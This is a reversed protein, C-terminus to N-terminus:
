RCVRGCGCQVDVGTEFRGQFIEPVSCGTRCTQGIQVQTGVCKLEIQLRSFRGDLRYGGRRAQNLDVRFGLKLEFGVGRGLRLQNQRVGFKNREFGAVGVLEIVDENLQDLSLAPETTPCPPGRTGSGM